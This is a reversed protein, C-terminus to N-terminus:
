IRFTSNLISIDKYRERFPNQTPTQLSVAHATTITNSEFPLLTYSTIENSFIKQASQLDAANSIEKFEHKCCDTKSITGVANGTLSAESQDTAECECGCTKQMNMTCKMQSYAFSINAFLALLIFGAAIYKKNFVKM